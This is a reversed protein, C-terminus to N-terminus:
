PSGGPAGAHRRPRAQVVADVLVGPLHVDEPRIAGVAVIEKAEVVVRDCATAMLPGMNRNTGRWWANGARDVVDACLLAAEGRLARELLWTRGDLEVQPRGAAYETGLGVDHLFAAIGAGGARIREALIGQPVLECAIEGRNMREILDPNLGVHSAVLRRVQGASILPGVGLHPENADNKVIELDRFEERRDAIAELLTFPTGGRGFGSVMLCRRGRLLRDLAEELPLVRERM